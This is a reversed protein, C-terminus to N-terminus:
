LSFSNFQPFSDDGEPIPQVYCLLLPVAEISVCSSVGCGGNGLNAIYLVM